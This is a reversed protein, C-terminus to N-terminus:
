NDRLIFFLGRVFVFIHSSTYQIVAHMWEMFGFLCSFSHFTCAVSDYSKMEIPPQEVVHTDDNTRGVTLAILFTRTVVTRRQAAMLEICHNYYYPATMYKLAQISYLVFDNQQNGSWIDDNAPDNGGVNNNHNHSSATSSRQLYQQLWHYLREYANEQQVSLQEMLQLATTTTASTTTTSTNSPDTRSGLLDHHNSTNSAITGFKEQLACRINRIRQLAQLFAIGNNNDTNNNNNNTTTLNDDFQNYHELLYVDHDSLNYQQVFLQLTQLQAQIMDRQQITNHILTAVQYEENTTHTDVQETTNTNTTTTTNTTNTTSMATNATPLTESESSTTTTGTTHDDHITKRIMQATTVIAQCHQRLQTMVQLMEDVSEQVAMAQQLADLEMMTRVSRSDITMMMTHNGNSNSNSNATSTGSLSTSTIIRGLEQLKASSSSSSSCSTTATPDAPDLCPQLQQQQQLQLQQLQLQSLADFASKMATTDTRVALARAVRESFINQNNNHDNNGSSNSNSSNNMNNTNSNRDTDAITANDDLGGMRSAALATDTM